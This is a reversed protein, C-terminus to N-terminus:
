FEPGLTDKIKILWLSLCLIIGGIVIVNQTALSRRSWTDRLRMPFFAVAIALGVILFSFPHYHWAAGFKGHVLAVCARTMGCGPCVLETLSHFICPILSVAEASIESVATYLGVAGLGILFLRALFTHNFM